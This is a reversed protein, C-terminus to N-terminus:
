WLGRHPHSHSQHLEPLKRDKTIDSTYKEEDTETSGESNRLFTALNLEWTSLILAVSTPLPEALPKEVEPCETLVYM